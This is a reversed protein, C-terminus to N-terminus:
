FRVGLLCVDDVQEKEGKWNRFSDLLLEKQVGMPRDRNTLVIDHLRKRNFKKGASGGFQDQYGDSGLYLAEGKEVRITRSGFSRKEELQWGGVPYNSGRFERHEHGKVHLISRQAGAFELEMRSPDYRCFSIDIWDNQFDNENTIQFSDILRQDLDVLIDSASRIGKGLVIYNLFSQGLMALLAGPVGHGTCDAVAFYIMGNTEALWYFDGGVDEKPLHIAFHDPFARDFHRPKPLLANQILAARELSKLLDRNKNWLKQYDVPCAEEEFLEKEEKM